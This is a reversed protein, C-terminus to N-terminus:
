RGNPNITLEPIGHKAIAYPWSGGWEGGDDAGIGSGAAEPDSGNDLNASADQQSRRCIRM